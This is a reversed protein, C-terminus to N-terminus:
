AHLYEEEWQAIKMRLPRLRKEELTNALQENRASPKGDLTSRLALIRFELEEADLEAEKLREVQYKAKAMRIYFSPNLTTRIFGFGMPDVSTQKQSEVIYDSSDPSVTIEPLADVIEEVRKAKSSLISVVKLFTDFNINVWELDYPIIDNNEGGPAQTRLNQEKRLSLILWRRSFRIYFALAEILQLINYRPITISENSFDESFYEDLMNGLTGFLPEIEKNLADITSIANGRGKVKSAETIKKSTSEVWDSDFKLGGFKGSADKFIPKNFRNFEQNADTLSSRVSSRELTPLISSVFSKIDM